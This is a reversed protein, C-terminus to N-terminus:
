VRVMECFLSAEKEDKFIICYLREIAKAGDMERIVVFVKCKKKEPRLNYKVLFDFSTQMVEDRIFFCRKGNVDTVYVIGPGIGEWEERFRHLNVNAQFVVGPITEAVPEETKQVHMRLFGSERSQKPQEDEKQMKEFISKKSKLCQMDMNTKFINGFEDAAKDEGASVTCGRNEGGNCTYEEGSAERRGGDDRCGSMNEVRKGGLKENSEESDEASRM